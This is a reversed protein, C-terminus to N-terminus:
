CNVTVNAINYEVSEISNTIENSEYKRLDSDYSLQLNLYNSIDFNFNLTYLFIMFAM